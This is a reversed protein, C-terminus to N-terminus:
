NINIYLVLNSLGLCKAHEARAILSFQALLDTQLVFKVTAKAGKQNNLLKRLDTTRFASLIGTRLVSWTPCAFLVHHVSMIGTDCPCRPSLTSPVRHHFLFENFSIIGM